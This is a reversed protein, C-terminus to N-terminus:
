LSEFLVHYDNQEYYIAPEANDICRIYVVGPQVAAFIDYLFIVPLHEYKTATFVPSIIYQKLCIQEM